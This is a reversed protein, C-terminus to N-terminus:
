TGVHFTKMISSFLSTMKKISGLMYTSYSAYHQFVLQIVNKIHFLGRTKNQNSLYQLYKNDTMRNNNLKVKHNFLM